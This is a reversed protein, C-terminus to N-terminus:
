ALRAVPLFHASVMDNPEDEVTVCNTISSITMARFYPHIPTGSVCLYVEVAVNGSSKTVIIEVCDHENTHSFDSCSAGNHVDSSGFDNAFIKSWQCSSDQDLVFSGANLIAAAGGSYIYSYPSDETCDTCDVIDSFTVTVQLPTKGADCYACDDGYLFVMQATKNAAVFSAKLTSANFQVNDM